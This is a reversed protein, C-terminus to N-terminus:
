EDDEPVSIGAPHGLTQDIFSAADFPRVVARAARYFDRYFQREDQYTSEQNRQNWRDMLIRWSLRTPERRQEAESLILESLEGMVFRAVALNRRSLARPKRGLMQMQLYQYAKIVTEAAMWPEVKLTVTGYTLHDGIFADAEGLLAKPVTAEGTLVFWSAEAETWPYCVRERLDSSIEHLVELISGPSFPISECEGHKRSFFELSGAEPHVDTDQRYKLGREGFTKTWIDPSLAAESRVFEHAQEPTLPKAEPMLEGPYGSPSFRSMNNRFEQVSPYATARLNLYEALTEAREKEYGDFHPPEIIRRSNDSEPLSEVQEVIDSYLLLARAYDVFRDFDIGGFRVSAIHGRAELIEWVPRPVSDRNLSAALRGHLEEDDVGYM